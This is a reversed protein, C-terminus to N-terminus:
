KGLAGTSCNRLITGRHKVAIRLWRLYQDLQTFVRFHSVGYIMNTNQPLFEVEGLKYGRIAAKVALETSLAWGGSRQTEIPNERLFSKRYLKVSTTVDGLPIGSLRNLLFNGSRSLVKKVVGGRSVRRIKNFRNGSVLDCGAAILDYMENVLGFPDVHYAVWVGVTDAHAASFGAKVAEIIGKGPNKLLFLGSFSCQLERAVPVTKDDDHDYVIVLELPMRATFALTTISPIVLPGDGRVPM